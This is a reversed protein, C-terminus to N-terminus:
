AGTSVLKTLFDSWSQAIMVREDWHDGRHYFGRVASGGVRHSLAREIADPNWKGSENLLTSATSRFGHATVEEKGFGMRRLAANISNESMPRKTTNFAPFVYGEPGTISRLESLLKLVQESLPVFHDRRMKSGEAPVRWVKKELDIEHWRAYRLEGPRLFVHPLIKLAYRVPPYGGYGEIAVLLEQLRDPELIAAYNRVTPSILAGRLLAAPDAKARGTSVAYRFVRSAFSRAKRATELTGRSELKKLASLLLLPDVENVPLKGITPQLLSAFWRAKSLTTQARGEKAMKTIYESAVESFTNAVSALDAARKRKRELSPDNGESIQRRAEDRRRRAESLSVEPYSGLALRNEKGAFRYKVRWLKSGRPFIEIYLGKEDARKIPKAAPKFARISKDTLPM